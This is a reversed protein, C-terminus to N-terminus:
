GGECHLLIAILFSLLRLSFPSISLCHIMFYIYHLSVLCRLCLDNCTFRTAPVLSQDDKEEDDSESDGVDDDTVCMVFPKNNSRDLAKKQCFERVFNRLLIM